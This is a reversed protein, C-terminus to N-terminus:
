TTNLYFVFLIIALLVWFSLLRFLFIQHAHKEDDWKVPGQLDDSEKGPDKSGGEPRRGPISDQPSGSGKPIKDRSKRPEKKLSPPPSRHYKLATYVMSIITAVAALAFLTDM